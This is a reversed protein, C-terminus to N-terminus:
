KMILAQTVENEQQPAESSLSHTVSKELCIRFLRM